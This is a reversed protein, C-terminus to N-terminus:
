FKDFNTNTTQTIINSSAPYWATITNIKYNLRALDHRINLPISINKMDYAWVKIKM